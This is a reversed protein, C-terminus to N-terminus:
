PDERRRANARLAHLAITRADSARADLWQGGEPYVAVACGDRPCHGLCGTRTVWLDRALGSERAVAKLADFLAPGHAGCASQLPDGEGRVNACVFVQAVPVFKAAKM